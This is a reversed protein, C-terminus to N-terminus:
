KKEDTRRIILRTLWGAIGFFIFVTFADHRLYEWFDYPVPNNNNLQSINGFYWWLVVYYAIFSLIVFALPFFVTNAIKTEFFDNFWDIALYILIFAPFPLLFFMPSNWDELPTVLSVLYVLAYFVAFLLVIKIFKRNM